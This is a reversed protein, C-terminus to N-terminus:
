IYPSKRYTSVKVSIHIAGRVEDFRNVVVEEVQEAPNFVVEDIFPIAVHLM